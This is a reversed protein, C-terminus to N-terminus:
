LALHVDEIYETRAVNEAAVTFRVGTAGLRESLTSEGPFQHSLRTNELLLRAHARAASAAQENWELTPLGNKAREQNLDDFVRKESQLMSSGALASSMCALLLLFVLSKM